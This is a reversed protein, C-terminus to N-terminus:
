MVPSKLRFTLRDTNESLGISITDLRCDVQLTDNVFAEFRAQNGMYIARRLYSILGSNGPLQLLTLELPTLVDTAEVELCGTGLAVHVERPGKGTLAKIHAAYGSKLLKESALRQQRDMLRCGPLVLTGAQAIREAAIKMLCAELEDSEIPKVCYKTIGLDVAKLITESDSFASTIVVPTQNGEQRLTRILTLGDMEPMWLDCLIVDYEHTRCLTLAELGNAAPTLSAVRKKLYHSLEQLAEPDDEVYLLRLTNLLAATNCNIDDTM